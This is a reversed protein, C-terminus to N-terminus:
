EEAVPMFSAPITGTYVSELARVTLGEVAHSAAMDAPYKSLETIQYETGEATHHKALPLIQVNELSAGEDGLVVDLTLLGSLVTEADTGTALLNGLSYVALTVSGDEATLWEATQLGMGDTGVIVDAGSEALMQCATRQAERISNETNNDWTVSVVVVDSVLDAYTIIAAAAPADTLDHLILGETDSNANETFAVYAVRIGNAELVRVDGADIDDKYTGIQLVGTNRVNDVTSRLGAATCVLRGTGATNIVDFGLDRLATLSDVPMNTFTETSLGFTEENAAPTNLTVLAMDADQVLPFIGSYMTLFSYQKGEPARAAADAIIASDVIVGGAATLSIRKEPEAPLAETEAATESETETETKTYREAQQLTPASTEERSLVESTADRM